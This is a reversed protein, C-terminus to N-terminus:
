THSDFLLNYVAAAYDGLVDGLLKQISLDNVQKKSFLTSLVNPSYSLCTHLDQRLQHGQGVCLFLM